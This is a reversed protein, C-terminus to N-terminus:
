TIFAYAIVMLSKAINASVEFEKSKESEKSLSDPDFFTTYYSHLLPIAGDALYELLGPILQGTEDILLIVSYM